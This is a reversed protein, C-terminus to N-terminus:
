WRTQWSHAMQLKSHGSTGLQHWKNIAPAMQSWRNFNTVLQQWIHGDFKSICWQFTLILKNWTLLLAVPLSTLTRTTSLPPWWPPPCPLFVLTMIIFRAWNSVFFQIILIVEGLEHIRCFSINNAHSSGHCTSYSPDPGSGFSWIQM